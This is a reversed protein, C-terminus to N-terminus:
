LAYQSQYIEYYFGKKDLLSKHTGTEVIDGNNIVLIMDANVITSLRHAIVFCTRNKMLKDMAKQVLLETRTDINSTAEDLILLKKDTLFARAITLLQKQGTSINASGEDIETDYGKPLTKIFHDVYASECAKEVEERTAGDKGYAVNEYITGKFLWTDQLVMSFLERVSERSVKSIDNGDVLIRGGLPDYFRMLLNVITTKGAGTPGVIAIKQGSRVIANLDKILPEDPKYSFKVHDFSVDGNIDEPMAGDIIPMEPEDLLGYVRKGAAKVRQMNAIGFAINELPQAFQRAYLVIAVIVGISAADNIAMYGGLLCIVVYAFSNIFAIIPQLVSSLVVGKRLADRMKGNLEAHKESRSQELNFTKITMYGSYSEELLTYLKGNHEFMDSFHKEAKKGLFSSLVVSIPIIAVVLLALQWNILFMMVAIAVIKLIGMMVTDLVSHVTNGMTSVDSTMKELVEGTQTGDFFKVPLKSLKSSMDIRIACTFHRSVVNNMVLMRLYSFLGSGLFFAALLMVSPLIENVLGVTEIGSNKLLWFDNMKDIIQSLVIPAFVTCFIDTVAILSGVAMGGKIRKTENLLRKLIGSKDKEKKM